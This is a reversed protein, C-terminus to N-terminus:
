TQLPLRAVVEAPSLGEVEVLKRKSSLGHTICVASKAVGLVQALYRQLEENARGEIPQAQLRIKLADQQVGMLESKKANPAVMVALRVGKGHTSCWALDTASM